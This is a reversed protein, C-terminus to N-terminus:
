LRSYDTDKNPRGKTRPNKYRHTKCHKQIRSRERCIYNCERGQIEFVCRLRNTYVLIGLIAPSSIDPYIVQSPDKAVRSLRSIFEIVQAYQEKTVTKYKSQIYGKLNAPNIAFQYRKYIVVQCERHHIFLRKFV